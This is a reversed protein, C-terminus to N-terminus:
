VWAIASYIQSLFGSAITSVLAPRRYGATAALNKFTKISLPYPVWINGTDVNYEVLILRGGPKLYKQIQKLFSVKERVYHLSNAMLIGDLTPLHLQQTFDAIIFNINGNPYMERFINKQIELRMEDKDISFIDSLPTLSELAFTFAGEGSGFDAWKGSKRPIVDKILSVHDPYDMFADYFIISPQYHFNISYNYNVASWITSM